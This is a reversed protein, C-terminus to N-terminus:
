EAPQRNRRYDLPCEQASVRRKSFVRLLRATRSMDMGNAVINGSGIDIRNQPGVLRTLVGFSFVQSDYDIGTGTELPPQQALPKQDTDNNARVYALTANAKVGPMIKYILDAEGGMTTADVNRTLIPAPNWRMLIYDQVKGYFGSVSGSWADSRWVMGMDLQTTKEPKTSLFASKLTGPDQKLREWYDPSREAHGVGAYLASGSWMDLEYRGFGSKLTKRDTLGMTNNKLPSAGPCMSANVCMRNDTARHWDARFGGILRSRLSLIQTAGAFLGVQNFSMDKVRPAALFAATALDASAAGMVSRGTHINRQTDFMEDHRGYSGVTVSGNLPISAHEVRTRDREFLVTGASANPRYLVTQPGKLVTIRQYVDPFVNATPPDMRGGCGGLIKQGDLLINLRSGAM